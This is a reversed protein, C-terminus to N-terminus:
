RLRPSEAVCAVADVGLRLQVLHLWSGSEDTGASGRLGPEGAIRQRERGCSLVRKQGPLQAGDMRGYCGDSSTSHLASLHYLACLAYPSRWSVM